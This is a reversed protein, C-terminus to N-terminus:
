LLFGLSFQELDLRGRACRGYPCGYHVTSLPTPRPGALTLAAAPFKFWALDLIRGFINKVLQKKYSRISVWFRPFAWAKLTKSATAARPLM